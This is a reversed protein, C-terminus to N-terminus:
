GATGSETTINLSFSRPAGDVPHSKVEVCVRIGQGENITYSTEGYGVTIPAIFSLFM